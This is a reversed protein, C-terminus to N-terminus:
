EQETGIKEYDTGKTEKVKLMLLVVAVGVCPVSFILCVLWIPAFLIGVNVFVFGVAMGVYVLLGVAGVISARIETPVMETSIIEMYDRGIWYGGIYLGYAIGVLYPNWGSNIAIIFM